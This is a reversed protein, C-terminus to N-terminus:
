LETWNDCTCTYSELFKEEANVDFSPLTRGTIRFGEFLIRFVEVQHHLKVAIANLKVGQQIMAEVLAFLTQDDATGQRTRTLTMEGFDLIQGPFKYKRNTGADVLEVSQSVKQVGELTEFHPSVLGPLEMYWGNTVYLDQPKIPYPM